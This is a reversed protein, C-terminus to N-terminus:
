LTLWTSPEYEQGAAGTTDQHHDLAKEQNQPFPMAQGGILSHLVSVKEM